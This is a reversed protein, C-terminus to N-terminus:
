RSPATTRTLTSAFIHRAQTSRMRSSRSSSQRMSTAPTHTQSTRSSISSTSVRKAWPRFTGRRLSHRVHDRMARLREVSEVGASGFQYKGPQSRMLGVLERMDNAKVFQPNTMVLLGILGHPLHSLIFSIFVYDADNAKTGPVAAALTAKAQARISQVHGEAALAGVRAVAEAKTDGDHKAAIWQRILQGRALCAAAFDDELSGLKHDPDHKLAQTWAPQNFYVPPTEFQYFVFLLVGLLLIFFQMPIKCVANFMLGMRSERLSDGSIYRQVQSQDTGFYSLALFM